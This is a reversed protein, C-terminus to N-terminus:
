VYKVGEEPTGITSKSFTNTQQTQVLDFFQEIMEREEFM